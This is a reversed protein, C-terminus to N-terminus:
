GVVGGSWKKRLRWSHTVSGTPTASEGGLVRALEEDIATREQTFESLAQAMRDVLRAKREAAPREVQRASPVAASVRQEDEASIGADLVKLAAARYTAGSDIYSLGLRNALNRAVTSKGAGAPGTDAQYPSARGADPNQVRTAGAKSLSRRWLLRKGMRVFVYLAYSGLVSGATSQLVYVFARAPHQGSLHILLLDNILPLGLVSADLFSIAFLGWGGYRALVGGLGASLSSLFHM